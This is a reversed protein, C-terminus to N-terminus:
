EDDEDFDDEEPPPNGDYVLYKRHQRYADRYFLYKDLAASRAAKQARLLDSRKDVYRLGWMSWGYVNDGVRRNIFHTLWDVAFGGGDRVGSPGIIPLVLYPGAPVGWKGLTQGFDEHHKELGWTSAVDMIGFFGLTTNVAFRGLDSFAAKVKLQLLNNVMNTPEDLNSFFNTVSRDIGEPVVKQYGRAVPTAVYTDLYQNIDFVTRNFPEFPDEPDADMGVWSACGGLSVATFLLAGLRTVFKMTM